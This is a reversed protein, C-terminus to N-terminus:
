ARGRAAASAPLRWGGVPVCGYQKSLLDYNPTCLVPLDLAQALQAYFHGDWHPQSPLAVAPAIRSAVAVVVGAAAARAFNM